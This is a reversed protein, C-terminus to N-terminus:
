LRVPYKKNIHKPEHDFRANIKHHKKSKPPVEEVEKNQRMKVGTREGTGEWGIGCKNQRRELEGGSDIRGEGRCRELERGIEDKRMKTEECLRLREDTDSLM